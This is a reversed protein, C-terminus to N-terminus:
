PATTCCTALATPDPARFCESRRRFREFEGIGAKRCLDFLDIEERPDIGILLFADDVRQPYRPWTVPKRPSPM